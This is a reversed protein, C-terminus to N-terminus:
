LHPSLGVQSAHIGPSGRSAPTTPPYLGAQSSVLSSTARQQPHNQPDWDLPLRLTPLPVQIHSWPKLYQEGRGGHGWEWSHWQDPPRRPEQIRYTRSHKGWASLPSARPLLPPAQPIGVHPYPWPPRLSPQGAKGKGKRGGASQSQGPAWPSGAASSSATGSPSGSWLGRTYRHWRGSTPSTPAKPASFPTSTPCSGINSLGLRRDGPM